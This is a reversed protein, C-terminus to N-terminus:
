GLLFTGAIYGAYGLLFAIGAARGIRGSLVLGLLVLHAGVMVPLAFRMLLPDVPLPNIVAALGLTVLLNYAFSGIVGGVLIDAQHKRAAVFALAIMEAATGLSVITLGIASQAVHALDALRLAGEVIAVGGLGMAVLGGLALAAPKWRASRKNSVDNDDDDDDDDDDDELEELQEVRTVAERDIRLLVITYVVFLLLLLAGALRSIYGYILLAVPPISVVTALLAQRRV